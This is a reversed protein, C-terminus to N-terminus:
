GTQVRVTLENIREVSLGTIQSMVEKIDLGKELARKANEAVEIKGERKADQRDLYQTM